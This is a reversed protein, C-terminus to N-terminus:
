PAIVLQEVIFGQTPSLPLYPGMFYSSSCATCNGLSLSPGLFLASSQCGSLQNEM